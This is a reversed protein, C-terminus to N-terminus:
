RRPIWIWGEREALARDSPGLCRGSLFEVGLQVAIIADLADPFGLPVERNEVNLGCDELARLIEGRASRGDARKYGRSPCGRVILWSAPYVEIMSSCATAPNWALDFRVGTRETVSAVLDLVALATRAIRDAGVDLPQKGLLHRVVKDTERRFLDNAPLPLPSGARHRALAPGLAAPWGLPADIALLVHGGASDSRSEAVGSEAHAVAATVVGAAADRLEDADTIRPFASVSWRGGATERIGVALGTREPAVAADIGLITTIYPDPERTAM